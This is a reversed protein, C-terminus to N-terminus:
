VSAASVKADREVLQKWKESDSFRPHVSNNFNPNPRMALILIAELDRVFATMDILRTEAFEELSLAMGIAGSISPRRVGFWSFRDWWKDPQNKYKIFKHHFHHRLRIGIGDEIALGAYQAGSKGYLVYVGRQDCFDAVRDNSSGLLIPHSAKWDVLSAKWELGHARIM